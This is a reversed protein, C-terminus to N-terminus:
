ARFHEYVKNKHRKTYPSMSRVYDREEARHLMNNVGSPLKSLFLMDRSRENMSMRHKEAYENLMQEYIIDLCIKPASRAKFPKFYEAPKEYERNPIERLYLSFLKCTVTDKVSRIKGIGTPSRKRSEIM